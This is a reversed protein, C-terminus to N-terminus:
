PHCTGCPADARVGRLHRVAVDLHVGHVADGGQVPRRGAPEAQQGVEDSPEAPDDGRVRM